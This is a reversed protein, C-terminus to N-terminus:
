IHILSLMYIYHVPPDVVYSVQVRVCARVRGKKVCVFVVVVVVVWSGGCGVVVPGPGEDHM